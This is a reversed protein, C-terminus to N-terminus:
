RFNYDTIDLLYKTHTSAEEEDVYNKIFDSYPLYDVFYSWGPGLTPDQTSAGRIKSRLCFNADMALQLM